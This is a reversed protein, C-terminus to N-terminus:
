YSPLFTKIGAADFYVRCELESPFGQSLSTSTRLNDVAIQYDRFSTYIEPPSGNSARAVAYHKNPIDLKPTPPPSSRRGELVEKVWCGAIWARRVRAEGSFGKARLVRAASLWGSPVEPFVQEGPPAPSSASSESALLGPPPCTDASPEQGQVPEPSLSSGSPVPTSGVGPESPPAEPNPDVPTTPSRSRTVSICIGAVQLSIQTIESDGESVM